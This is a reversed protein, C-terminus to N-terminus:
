KGKNYEIDAINIIGPFWGKTLPKRNPNNNILDDIRETYNIAPYNIRNDNDTDEMSLTILEDGKTYKNFFNFYDKKRDDYIHRVKNRIIEYHIDFLPQIGKGIKLYEKGLLEEYFAITILRTKNEDKGIIDRTISLTKMPLDNHQIENRFNYLYCADNNAGRELNYKNVIKQHVRPLITEFLGKRKHSKSGLLQDIYCRFSASLNLLKWNINTINLVLNKSITGELFINQTISSISLCYENYNGILIYLLQEAKFFADLIETIKKYDSYEQDTLTIEKLLECNKTLIIKM